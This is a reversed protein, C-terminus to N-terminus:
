GRSRNMDRHSLNACYGRRSIFDYLEKAICASRHQGGTCGVAIVLDTKGEDVYNPLLFTLLDETKELFDKTQQYQFIFNRVPEDLGTLKKYPEYRGPNHTSRCDFVYGGGNGSEDAPIGNRYAFSFVRVVLPGRGDYKSFTAPGDQPHAKYVNTHATRYGDARNLAPQEITAFRPLATLRRLMDMMYPYPFCKLGLMERLNQIAPPISDIFHRKQAFYGRFGYAGLVQLTRFLVFRSLQEVFHRVSPVETYNKLSEYYEYVLERRLKHSYRASAQWLFSAM